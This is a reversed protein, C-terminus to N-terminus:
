HCFSIFVVVQLVKCLVQCMLALFYSRASSLDTDLHPPETEADKATSELNGNAESVGTPLSGTLDPMLSPLM